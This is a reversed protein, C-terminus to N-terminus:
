GGQAAYTRGPQRRDIPLNSGSAGISQHIENYVQERVADAGYGGANCDATQKNMPAMCASMCRAIWSAGLSCGRAVFCLLPAYVGDCAACSVRHATHMLTRPQSPPCLFSCIVQEEKSSLTKTQFSHVCNAFCREVLGNYM